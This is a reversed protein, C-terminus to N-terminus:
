GRRRDPAAATVRAGLVLMRQRCGSICRSAPEVTVFGPLGDLFGYSLRQPESGASLQALRGFLLMAREIGIVPVLAAPRKGGGDSYVAIDDTLLARLATM